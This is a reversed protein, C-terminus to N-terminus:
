SGRRGEGEKIEVPQREAWLLLKRVDTRDAALYGLGRERWAVFGEPNVDLDL